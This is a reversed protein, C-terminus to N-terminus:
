TESYKAQKGIHQLDYLTCEVKERELMERKKKKKKKLPKM